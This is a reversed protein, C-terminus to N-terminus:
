PSVCPQLPHSPQFVYRITNVRSNSHTDESIPMSHNIVCLDHEISSSARPVLRVRATWATLLWTVGMSAVGAVDLIWNLLLVGLLDKCLYM